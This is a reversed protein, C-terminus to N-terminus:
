FHFPLICWEYDVVWNYIGLEIKDIDEESIEFQLYTSFELLPASIHTITSKLFDIDFCLPPSSYPGCPGCQLHLPYVIKQQTLFPHVL